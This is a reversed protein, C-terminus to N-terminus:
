RSTLKCATRAVGYLAGEHLARVRRRAMVGRAQGRRICHQEHLVTADRDIGALHRRGHKRRRRIGTAVMTASTAFAVPPRWGPEVGIKFLLIHTFRQRQQQPLGLVYAETPRPDILSRISLASEGV